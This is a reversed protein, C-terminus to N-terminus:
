SAKRERRRRAFYERASVAKGKVSKAEEILAIELLEERLRRDNVVKELFAEREDNNLARFATFFVEATAQNAKVM